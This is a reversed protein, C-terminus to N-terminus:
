LGQQVTTEEYKLLKKVFCTKKISHPNYGWAWVWVQLVITDRETQTVVKSRHPMPSGVM